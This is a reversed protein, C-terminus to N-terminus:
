ENLGAMLHFRHIQRFIPLPVLILFLFLQGFVENAGRHAPYLKRHAAEHGVCYVRQLWIGHVVIGLGILWNQGTGLGHLSIAYCVALGAATEFLM